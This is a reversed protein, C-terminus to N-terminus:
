QAPDVGTAVVYPKTIERREYKTGYVDVKKNAYKDLDVGPGAVVYMVTIGPSTELAYTKRGDIALASRVMRMPGTWRAKEDGDATKTAPKSAEGGGAPRTPAGLPPLTGGSGGTGIAPAGGTRKKERLTHIRTYCLNAVDHDGGPENMLRALQFLATEADAYRGDREAVEAQAWLPHQVAPKGATTAPGIPDPPLAPRGVGAGPISAAPAGLPPSPPPTTDRVSFATSATKEFTVAQKPIYRFDGAPPAVPHWWKGEFQVKAGIVTLGTGAPVKARRVHTLPQVLGIQGACLTTDEEVVVNQPTPKTNDFDIFSAQVWSVSYVKGPSDQVALWGNPEEHDVVLPSGKALNATEPFQDSPGARLRAGADAVVALYPGTQALVAAPTCALALGALLAPRM